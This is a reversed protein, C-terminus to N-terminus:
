PNEFAKMFPTYNDRGYGSSFIAFAILDFDDIRKDIEEKYIIAVKETPNQFAGCGFAGLVAHRIGTIRLTDLQAIIRHRAESANFELGGRLDQASARMEYFSFIEEEALWEYGLEDAQRNEPGRICVRPHEKDLYVIEFKASLLETMM